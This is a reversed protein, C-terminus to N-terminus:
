PNFLVLKRLRGILFWHTFVQFLCQVALGALVAQIPDIWPELDGLIIAITFFIGSLVFYFPVRCVFAGVGFPKKFRTSLLIYWLWDVLWGSTGLSLWLGLIRLWWVVEMKGLFVVLMIWSLFSLGNVITLMQYLSRWPRRRLIELHYALMEKQDDSIM